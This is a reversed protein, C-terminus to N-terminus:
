DSQMQELCSELRAVETAFNAERLTRGLIQNESTVKLQITISRDSKMATLVELTQDASARFLSVGNAYHFDSFGLIEGDIDMQLELGDDPGYDIFSLDLRLENLPTDFHSSPNWNAYLYSLEVYPLSDSESPPERVAFNMICGFDTKAAYWFSEENRNIQASVVVSFLFIGISATIILKM